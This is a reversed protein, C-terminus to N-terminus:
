TKVHNLSLNAIPHLITMKRGMLCAPVCTPMMLHLQGYVLAASSTSLIRKGFISAFVLALEAVQDKIDIKWISIDKNVVAERFQHYKINLHKTRPRLKHTKAMELAGSNDGFAKCHVNPTAGSMEFGAHKIEKVLWMLPLVEQLCQSSLIYESETSSLAIETQLLSAWLVPCGAYFIIYGSRSRAASQDNEAIEQLYHGAFNADSCCEFGVEKPL